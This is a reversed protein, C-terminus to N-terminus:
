GFVTEAWVQSLRRSYTHLYEKSHFNNFSDITESHMVDIECGALSQVEESNFDIWITIPRVCSLSKIVFLLLLEEVITKRLRRRIVVTNEATVM